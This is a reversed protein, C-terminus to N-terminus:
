RSGLLADLLEDVALVLSMRVAVLPEDLEQPLLADVDGPPRDGLVALLEAHERARFATLQKSGVKNGTRATRCGMWSGRRPWVVLFTGSRHLSVENEALHL